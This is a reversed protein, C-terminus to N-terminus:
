FLEKRIFERVQGIFSRLAAPLATTLPHLETRSFTLYDQVISKRLQALELLPDAVEPSIVREERLIEVIDEYSSADRMLFGDIMDSGVDTVAEVALHLAREQAFGALMKDKGWHDRLYELVHIIEPLFELRQEIRQTNVNYM